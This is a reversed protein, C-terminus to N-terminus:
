WPLDHLHGQYPWDEPSAVLGKRVPNQAVYDLKRRYHEQDRMQTDWCDWIFAGRLRVDEQGALRKWYKAWSKVADPTWGQPSCFLHVHDPMALYYGVTWREALSWARQLASHALHDTLLPRRNITAVTLLVIIPQNHRAVPSPHAPHRRDPTAPRVSSHDLMSTKVKGGGHACMAKPM